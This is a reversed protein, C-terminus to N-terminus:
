QLPIPGSPPPPLAPMEDTCECYADAECYVSICWAEHDLSEAFFQASAQVRADRCATPPYTLDSCSNEYTPSTGGGCANVMATTEEPSGEWPYVLAPDIEGPAIYISGSESIDPLQELMRRFCDEALEVWADECDGPGGGPLGVSDAGGDAGGDQDGGEDGGTDSQGGTDTSTDGGTDTSTDDGGSTGSTENSGDSPPPPTPPPAPQEDDSGSFLSVIFDVIASLVDVIVSLDLSVIKTELGQENEQQQADREAWHPLMHQTRRLEEQIREEVKDQYFRMPSGPPYQEDLDGNTLDSGCRAAQHATREDMESPEDVGLGAAMCTGFDVPRELDGLTMGLCAMPDELGGYGDPSDHDPGGLSDCQDQVGALLDEIPVGANDLADFDEASLDALTGANEDPTDDGGCPDGVILAGLPGTAARGLDPAGEVGVAELESRLQTLTWSVERLTWLREATPIFQVRHRVLMTRQFAIDEDGSVAAGISDVIWGALVPDLRRLVPAGDSDVRFRPALFEAHLRALVGDTLGVYVIAGDAPADEAFASLFELWAEERVARLETIAAAQDEPPEEPTTQLARAAAFLEFLLAEEVVVYRQFATPDGYLARVEIPGPELPNSARTDVPPGLLAVITAASFLLKTRTM